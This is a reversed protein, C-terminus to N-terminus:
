QFLFKTQLYRNGNEYVTNVTKEVDYNPSGPVIVM